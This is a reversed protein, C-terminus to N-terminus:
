AEPQIPLRVSTLRKRMITRRRVEQSSVEPAEERGIRNRWRRLHPWRVLHVAATGLKQMQEDGAYIGAARRYAIAVTACADTMFGYGRDDQRDKEVGMRRTAVAGATAATLEAVQLNESFSVVNQNPKVKFQDLM